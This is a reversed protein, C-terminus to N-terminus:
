NFTIVNLKHHCKCYIEKDPCKYIEKNIESVKASKIRWLFVEVTDGLKSELKLDVLSRDFVDKASSIFFQRQGRLQSFEIYTYNFEFHSTKFANFSFRPTNKRSM